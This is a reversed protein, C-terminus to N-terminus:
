TANKCVKYILLMDAITSYLSCPKVDHEVCLLDNQPHFHIFLVMAILTQHTGSSRMIATLELM